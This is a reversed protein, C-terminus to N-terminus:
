FIRKLKSRLYSDIECGDIIANADVANVLDDKTKSIRKDASNTEDLYYWAGSRIILDAAIAEEVVKEASYGDVEHQIPKEIDGNFDEETLPNTLRSKLEDYFIAGVDTTDIWRFMHDLPDIGYAMKHHGVAEGNHTWMYMGDTSNFKIIGAGIADNLNVKVDLKPDEWISIIKEPNKIAEIRASNRLSSEFLEEGFKDVVPVGATKLVVRLKNIKGNHAIYKAKTELADNVMNDEAIQEMDREYFLVTSKPNRNPNSGNANTLRMFNALNPERMSDVFMEDSGESHMGKWSIPPLNKLDEREFDPWEDTFVSLRTPDYAIIRPKAIGDEDVETIIDHAPFTISRNASTTKRNPTTRKSHLEFTLVKRQQSM